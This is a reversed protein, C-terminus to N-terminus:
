ARILFDKGVGFDCRNEVVNEELLVISKSKSKSEHDM